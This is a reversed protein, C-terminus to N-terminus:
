GVESLFSHKNAPDIINAKRRGPRQPPISINHQKELHKKWHCRRTFSSHCIECTFRKIANHSDIHRNLKTKDYFTLDCLTCHFRKMRQHLRREHDHLNSVTHYSAPCKSCKYKKIGFHIRLHKELDSKMTSCYDCHACSYRPPEHSRVHTYHSGRYLFTKGCIECIWSVNENHFKKRHEDSQKKSPFKLNCSECTLKKFKYKRLRPVSKKKYPGRKKINSSEPVKSEKAMESRTSKRLFINSELEVDGKIIESGIEYKVNTDCENNEYADDRRDDDSAEIKINEIFKLFIEESLLCLNKFKYAISLNDTCIKCIQTPYGEMAKFLIGTCFQIKNLLKNDNDMFLESTDINHTLCVRCMTKMDFELKSIEIESTPNM